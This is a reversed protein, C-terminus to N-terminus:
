YGLSELAQKAEEVGQEAARRYWKGAETVNKRTGIGKEYYLGLTLQAM